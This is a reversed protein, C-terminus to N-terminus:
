VMPVPRTIKWNGLLHHSIVSRQPLKHDNHSRIDCVGTMPLITNTGAGPMSSLSQHDKENSVGLKKVGFLLVM